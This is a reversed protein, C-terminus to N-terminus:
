QRPGGRFRTRRIVDLDDEILHRWDSGDHLTRELAARVLRLQGPSVDKVAARVVNGDRDESRGLILAQRGCTAAPIVEDVTWAEGTPLYEVLDGPRFVASSQDSAM